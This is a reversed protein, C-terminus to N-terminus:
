AKILFINGWHRIAYFEVAITSIDTVKGGAQKGPIALAGVFHKGYAFIYAALACIFAAFMFVLMAPITRICASSALFGAM